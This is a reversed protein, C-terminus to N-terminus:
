FSARVGVTVVRATPYQAIDLGAQKADAEASSVNPDYGRYASLVLLNTGSLYVSVSHPEHRWVEASVLLSTLRVHNGAQLTYTTPANFTGISTGARPVQTDPHTPTWRDRVRTSANFGNTPLDLLALNPDLVQYGLMADVQAQLGFRGYRLEQTLSLLQRPLGSGLYDLAGPTGNATGEFRPKGQADVGSYRYGILTALPQGDTVTFYYPAPRIDLAASGEPKTYRNRNFAAAVSTSGSFRGRRWSGTLTIEVGRNSLLAPIPEDFHGPFIRNAQTERRYATTTLTLRNQWLAFRLGADTQTTVEDLFQFFPTNSAVTFAFGHDGTFNARNSTRGWGAWLDLGSLWARDQLFAEHGAHWTAQVAPLWQQRYATPVLPSTDARLSGQLAYRAAYTYGASLQYSILNYGNTATSASVLHPPLNHIPSPESYTAFSQFRQSRLSTAEVAAQVAHHGTLTRAFRLAPNLVWQQYYGRRTGSQFGDEPAFRNNPSQYDNARLSDRELSGRLDLTLGPGFEYRLQGYALLRRNRPTSFNQRAQQVPNPNGYDNAYDGNPEYVGLTPLYRLTNRFIEPNLRNEQAQSYSLGGSLRLQKGLQQDLNLRLSYRNLGSNLAIGTQNLYDIAAYYRTGHKTGGDLSLHQQHLVAPRLLEAQWNTGQGFAAVQAPTYEDPYNYNRNAENAVQAVESAGLLAYPKRAQQVGVSASYQVRLRQGTAGRRTTIRVVGNQGLFGYQSTEFAGKLIEVQEIDEPALSLLPNSSADFDFTYASSFPASNQGSRSGFRYQYVPVGDVVYLPPTNSDLSAAGRIRVVAGAGPAGSYPTVQVGAVRSLAPQITPFPPFVKESSVSIFVDRIPGALPQLLSDNRTAPLTVITAQRTALSDLQQAQTATTAALLLIGVLLIRAM